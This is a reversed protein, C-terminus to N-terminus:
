AEDATSTLRGSSREKGSAGDRAADRDSSGSEVRSGEDRHSRRGDLEVAAVVHGDHAKTQPLDGVLGAGVGDVVGDLSAVTQKVASATRISRRTRNQMQEEQRCRWLDGVSNRPRLPSRITRLEIGTRSVWDRTSALARRKKKRSLRMPSPFADCGFFIRRRL